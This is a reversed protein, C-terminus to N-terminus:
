GRQAVKHQALPTLGPKVLGQDLSDLARLALYYLTLAVTMALPRGTPGATDLVIARAEEIAVRYAELASRVREFGERLGDADVDATVEALRDEVHERKWAQLALDAQEYPGFAKDYDAQFPNVANWRERVEAELKAAPTDPKARKPTREWEDPTTHERQALEAGKAQTDADYAAIQRKAELVKAHLKDREAQINRLEASATTPKTTTPM